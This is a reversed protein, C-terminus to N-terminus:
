STTGATSPRPDLSDTHVGNTFTFWKHETGTFAGALTPCHGGTQEDTWQCAMFVPVNIKHVFTLPSLPDAVKPKYYQNRQIKALLNSRRPTCSRTQRASRTARRSGSTAWAQGSDPGRAPRRRRPGEGVAPRLRHQPDRGSLAHDATQDIVSAARDGRPEAAEDAGVFLQSIGGYSIGVMGVKGHLVWPQRAVTEIVDYGDLGQLPEFFDFAGGSCGTGRM